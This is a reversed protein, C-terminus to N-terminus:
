REGGDGVDDGVRLLVETGAALPKDCLLWTQGAADRWASLVAITLPTGSRSRAELTAHEVVGDLGAAEPDLAMEWLSQRGDRRAERVDAIVAKCQSAM